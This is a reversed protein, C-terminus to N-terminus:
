NDKPKKPKKGRRPYGDTREGPDVAFRKIMARMEEPTKGDLTALRKQSAAAYSPGNDIGIYHRGLARAVFCTTGSGCYPDLVIDGAYSLFQILRYPLEEPYPAPHYDPDTLEKRQEPPIYWHSVSFDKFEKQSITINSEDGTLEFSEKAFILLYENNRRIRPAKPSGYTGWNPAHGICNQKYWAGEGMWLFGIERMVNFIDPYVPFVKHPNESTVDRNNIADVNIAVRGGHRLVRYVETFTAKLDALWKQYGAFDCEPNEYEISEIPYPISTICLSVKEGDLTKLGDLVDALIIQDVKGRTAEDLPPLVPIPRQIAALARKEEDKLLTDQGSAVREARRISIFDEHTDPLKMLELARKAAPTKSEMIKKVKKISTPGVNAIKALNDATSGKTEQSKVKKGDQRRKAAEKVLREVLAANSLVCIARQAETWNRRANQNSIMWQIVEARNAFSREKIEPIINIGTARLEDIARLRQHGDVAIPKKDAVERWVLIPDCGGDAKINEKLQAFEDASIDPLVSKLESDIEFPVEPQLNSSVM